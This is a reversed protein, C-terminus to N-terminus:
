TTSTNPGLEETTMAAADTVHSRIRILNDPFLLTFLTGLDYPPLGLVMQRCM